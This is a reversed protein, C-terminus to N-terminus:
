GQAIQPGTPSISSPFQTLTKRLALSTPISRPIIVNQRNEVGSLMTLVPLVHLQSSVVIQAFIRQQTTNSFIQKTFRADKHTILFKSSSFQKM